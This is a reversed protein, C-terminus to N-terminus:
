EMKNKSVIGDDTIDTFQLLGLGAVGVNTSSVVLYEENVESAKPAYLNSFSLFVSM